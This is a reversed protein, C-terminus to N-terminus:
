VTQRRDQYVGKRIKENAQAGYVMILYRGNVIRRSLIRVPMNFYFKM